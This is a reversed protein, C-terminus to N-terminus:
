RSVQGRGERTHNYQSLFQCEEIRVVSDFKDANYTEAKDSEVVVIQVEAHNQKAFM